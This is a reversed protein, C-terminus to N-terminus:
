KFTMAVMKRRMFAIRTVLPLNKPCVDHCALTPRGNIVIACSGCIGARCVFDFQLSADQKERIENLAIFLTMGDAEQLAYSQM